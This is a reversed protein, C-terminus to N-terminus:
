LHSVNGRACPRRHRAIIGGSPAARRCGRAEDRRRGLSRDARGSTKILPVFLDTDYNSIVGQLVATVRELGAGTDISPKPLPTLEGSPQKDFQMFVLNWIEVYRGCECGFQCDTHGADSAAPGMDYHIESCPGCPGTDGMMWFNDKMGLEYIREPAVGTAIWHEYAEDDRAIGNEGKFITAYLKDKPM